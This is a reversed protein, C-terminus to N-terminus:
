AFTLTVATDRSQRMLSLAMLSLELMAKNYRQNLLGFSKAHACGIDVVRIQKLPDESQLQNFLEILYKYRISHLWSVLPNFSQNKEYYTLNDKMIKVKKFIIILNFLEARMLSKDFEHTARYHM